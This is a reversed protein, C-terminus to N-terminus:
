FRESSIITGIGPGECAAWRGSVRRGHTPPAHVARPRCTLPGRAAPSRCTFPGSDSSVIHVHNTATYGAVTSVNHMELHPTRCANEREGGPLM